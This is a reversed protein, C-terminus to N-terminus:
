GSRATCPPGVCHWVTHSCCVPGLVLHHLQSCQRHRPHGYSYHYLWHRRLFLHVIFLHLNAQSLNYGYFFLSVILQATGLAAVAKSATPGEEIAGRKAITEPIDSEAPEFGYSDMIANWVYLLFGTETQEIENLLTANSKGTALYEQVQNTFAEIGSTLTEKFSEPDTANFKETLDYSIAKIDDVFAEFTTNTDNSSAM